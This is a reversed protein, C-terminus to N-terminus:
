RGQGLVHKHWEATLQKEDWGYVQEIAKLINKDERLELILAAFKAPQRALLATLTWAEAYHPLLMNTTDMKLLQGVPTVQKAVIRQQVLHMWARPDQGLARDQHYRSGSIIVTPSGAIVCETGNAFGNSLPGPWDHEYEALLQFYMFGIGAAVSRHLLDLRDGEMCFLVFRNGYFGGAKLIQAKLEDAAGPNDPNEFDKAMVVFMANVWKEFEYRRKILVVHCVRKDLGSRLPEKCKSHFYSELKKIDALFVAQVDKAAWLTVHQTEVPEIEAGSTKTIMRIQRLTRDRDGDTLRLGEGAVVPGAADPQVEKGPKDPKDPNNPNDDIIRPPRPGYCEKLADVQQASFGLRRLQTRVATTVEFDIGREEARGVIREHPVRERRLQSIDKMTLQDQGVAPLVTALVAAAMLVIWVGAHRMQM